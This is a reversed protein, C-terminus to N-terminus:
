RGPSSMNAKRATSAACTRTSGSTVQRSSSRTRWHCPRSSQPSDMRKARGAADYPTRTLVIPANTVGKPYVIVTYLKTGDRMPVMVERKVFDRNETPPTFKAPIDGGPPPLLQAPASAALALTVLLFPKLKM